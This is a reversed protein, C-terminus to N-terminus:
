DSRENESTVEENIQPQTEPPPPTQKGNSIYVLVTEGKEVDVLQNIEKNCKIVTGKPLHSSKEKTEYKINLASLIETYQAIVLDTYDPLPVKAAGKSVVVNITTKYGVETM